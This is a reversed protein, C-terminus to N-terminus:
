YKYKQALLALFILERTADKCAAADTNTSKHWYLL